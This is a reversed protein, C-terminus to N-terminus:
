IVKQGEALPNTLIGKLCTEEEEGSRCLGEKQCM